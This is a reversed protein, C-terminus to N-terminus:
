HMAVRVRSMLEIEDVIEEQRMRNRKRMLEESGQELHRLANEMQMLCM